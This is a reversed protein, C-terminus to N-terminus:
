VLKRDVWDGVWHICFSREMPIFRGSRSAGFKISLSTVIESGM